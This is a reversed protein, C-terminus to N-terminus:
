LNLTLSCSKWVFYDKGLFCGWTQVDVFFKTGIIEKQQWWTRGPMLHQVHIYKYNLLVFGSNLVRPFYLCHEPLLHKMHDYMSYSFYSNNFAQFFIQETNQSGATNTQWERKTKDCGTSHDHAPLQVWSNTCCACFHTSIHLHHSVNDTILSTRVPTIMLLSLEFIGEKGM